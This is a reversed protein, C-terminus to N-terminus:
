GQEQGANANNRAEENSALRPAEISFAAAAGQAAPLLQLWHVFSNSPVARFHSASGLPPARPECHTSLALLSERRM